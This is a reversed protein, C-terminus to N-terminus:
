EALIQNFIAVAAVFFLWFLWGAFQAVLNKSLFIYWDPTPHPNFLWETDPLEQTEADLFLSLKFFHSEEMKIKQERVIKGESSIKIHWGKLDM